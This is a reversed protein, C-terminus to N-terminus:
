GVKDFLFVVRKQDDPTGIINNIYDKKYNLDGKKIYGEAMPMCAGWSGSQSCDEPDIVKVITHNGTVVVSHKFNKMKALVDAISDKSFNMQLDAMSSAEESFVEIPNTGQISDLSTVDTLFNSVLASETKNDKKESTCSFILILLSLISVYKM